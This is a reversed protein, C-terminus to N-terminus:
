GLTNGFYRFGASGASVQDPRPLRGRQSVACSLVPLFSASKRIAGDDPRALRAALRYGCFSFDTSATERERDSYPSILGGDTQDTRSLRCLLRLLKLLRLMRLLSTAATCVQPRAYIGIMGPRRSIQRRRVHDLEGFLALVRSKSAHM